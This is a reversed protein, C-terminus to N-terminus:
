RLTASLAAVLQPGAPFNRGGLPFRVGLETWIPRPVGVAASLQLQLIRRKTNTLVGEVIWRRSWFGDLTAKVLTRPTPNVGVETLFVYEGGPDKAKERNEFRARYGFWLEAYAPAPWFSHGIEAFGELDWQGDGVPIIEADLPSSGIPAKAGFRLAVPTSENFLDIVKWRVWGRADGFGTTRKPDFDRNFRLDFFPIQLWVDLDRHLGLVIDTYLARADSEGMDLWPVRSGTEDFRQDTRQFFFATKVWLGGVKARTWQASAPEPASLLLLTAFLAGPRHMLLDAGPCHSVAHRLTPAELTTPEDGGVPTPAELNRDRLACLHVM